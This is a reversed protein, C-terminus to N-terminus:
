MNRIVHHALELLALAFRRSRRFEMRVELGYLPWNGRGSVLIAEKIDARGKRANRVIRGRGAIVAGRLGAEAMRGRNWGMRRVAAAVAAMVAFGEIRM